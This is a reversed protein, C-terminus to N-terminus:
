QKAAFQAGRLFTPLAARDAPAAGLRKLVDLATAQLRWCPSRLATRAAALASARSAQDAAAAARLRLVAAHAGCGPRSELAALMREMQHPPPPRERLAGVIAGAFPTRPEAALAREMGNWMVQAEDESAGAAVCRLAEGLSWAVDFDGAPLRALSAELQTLLRQRVEAYTVPDFDGGAFAPALRRLAQALSFDTDSEMKGPAMADPCRRSAVPEHSAPADGFPGGFQAAEPAVAVAGERRTFISRVPDFLMLGLSPLGRSWEARGWARGADDVHWADAGGHDFVFGVGNATATGQALVTARYRDDGAADVLVGVALDLGM